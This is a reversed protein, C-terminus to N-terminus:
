AIRRVKNRRLKLKFKFRYWESATTTQVTCYETRNSNTGNETSVEQGLSSKLARTKPKVNCPKFKFDFSLSYQSTM